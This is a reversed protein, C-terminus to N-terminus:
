LRNYTTLFYLARGRHSAGMEIAARVLVHVLLSTLPPKKWEARTLLYQAFFAVVYSLAQADSQFDPNLNRLNEAALFPKRFTEQHQRSTTAM